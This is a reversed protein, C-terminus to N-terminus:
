EPHLNEMKLYSVFKGVSKALRVRECLWIGSTYFSKQFHLIFESDSDHQVRVLYFFVVRFLGTM